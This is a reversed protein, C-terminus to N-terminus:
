MDKKVIKEISYNESSNLTNNSYYAQTWKYYLDNVLQDQIKYGKFQHWLYKIESYIKKHNNEAINAIVNNKLMELYQRLKPLCENDKYYKKDKKKKRYIDGSIISTCDFIDM